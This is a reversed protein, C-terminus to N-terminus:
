NRETGGRQGRVEVENGVSDDLMAGLPDFTTITKGGGWMRIDGPQLQGHAPAGRRVQRVGLRGPGGPSDKRMARGAGAARGGLRRLEDFPVYVFTTQLSGRTVPRGERILEVARKVRGLPLYFSSAAASSGGANLAVVRGRIDVVPSGSSGGSTGSAAQIYFTN